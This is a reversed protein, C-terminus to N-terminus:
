ATGFTGRRRGARIGPGSALMLGEAGHDGERWHEYPVAVTGIAPSWVREIPASREWEVYLDAFADGPAPDYVATTVFCERVVRGRTEVNVLEKLRDALWRIAAGRDAPHVRGSPERGAVNLRVAGVVSNNPAQFWRRDQLRPLPATAPAAATRSTSAGISAISCRTWSM